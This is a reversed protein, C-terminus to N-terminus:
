ASPTQPLDRAFGIRKPVGATTTGSTAGDLLRKATDVPDLAIRHPQPSTHGIRSKFASVENGQTVSRMMAEVRGTARRVAQADGAAPASVSSVGGCSPLGAVPSAVVTVAPAPTPSPTAVASPATVAMSATSSGWGGCGALVAFLPLLAVLRAESSQFMTGM